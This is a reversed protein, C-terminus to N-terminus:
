PLASSSPMMGRDALLAKAWPLADILLAAGKYDSMQGESLLLVLPRGKGDCLLRGAAGAKDILHAVPRLHARLLASLLLQHTRPTSLGRRDM